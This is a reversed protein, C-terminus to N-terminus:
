RRRRIVMAFVVVLAAGGFADGGIACGKKSPETPPPGGDEGRPPEVHTDSAGADGGTTPVPAGPKCALCPGCNSKPPSGQSYDLECCQDPQCTGPESQPAAEGSPLQVTRQSSCPAGETKGVCAEVAPNKEDAHAVSGLTLVAVSCLLTTALERLHM